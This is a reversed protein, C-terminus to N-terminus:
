PSVAPLVRVGPAPAYQSGVGVFAPDNTADWVSWDAYHIGFAGGVPDTWVSNPALRLNKCELVGVTETARVVVGSQCQPVYYPDLVVQLGREPVVPFELRFSRVTDTGRNTVRVRPKVINLEAMSERKLELKLGGVSGQPPPPPPPPVVLNRTQGWLWDGNADLVEVWPNLVWQGDLGQRSPSKSRDWASWDSMRVGFSGVSVKQGPQIWAKVFGRLMWLGGGLDVLDLQTNPVSWTELVPKAGVPVRLVWRVQLDQLPVNGDNQIEIQPKTINSENVAGERTAVRVRRVVPRDPDAAGVERGWLLKAKGDWVRITENKRIMGFNRDNSPDKFVDWPTWDAYHLGVQSSVASPWFAGPQVVANLDHLVLDFQDGGMSEISWLGGAPADLVVTRFPDARFRYRVDLGVIPSRGTNEVVIQPRTWQTENGRGERFWVQAQLDPKPDLYKTDVRGTGVLLPNDRIQREKVVGLNIKAGLGPLVLSKSYSKGSWTVAKITFTDGVRVLRPTAAYGPLIFTTTAGNQEIVVGGGASWLIRVPAQTTTAPLDFGTVGTDPLMLGFEFDGTVEVSVKSLTRMAFPYSGSPAFVAKDWPLRVVMGTAKELLDRCDPALACYIDHGQWASGVMEGNEGAFRRGLISKDFSADVSGHPVLSDPFRGMTLFRRVAYPRPEHFKGLHLPPEWVGGSRVAKQSEEQVAADSRALWEKTYDDWFKGLPLDAKVSSILSNSVYPIRLSEFAGYCAASRLDSEVDCLGSLNKSVLGRILPGMGAVSSYLPQFDLDQGNPLTPYASGLKIISDGTVSLQGGGEERSKFTLSHAYDKDTAFSGSKATFGGPLVWEWKTNKPWFWNGTMVVRLDSVSALAASGIALGEWACPIVANLSVVGTSTWPAASMAQYVQANAEGLLGFFSPSVTADLLKLDMKASDQLLKKVSNALETPQDAVSSTYLSGFHPSNSSVVTRIHNAANAAGVPMANGYPDTGAAKAIMERISVGGRSHAVLDIKLSTDTKWADGYHTQLVLQLAQYLWWSEGPKGVFKPGGDNWWPFPHRMQGSDSRRFGNFFYIGNQNIGAGKKLRKFRSIMDPATGSKYSDPHRADVSGLLSSKIPVLAQHSWLWLADTVRFEVDARQVVLRSGDAGVFERRTGPVARLAKWDMGTYDSALDSEKLWTELVGVVGSGDFRWSVVKPGVSNRVAEWLRKQTTDSIWFSNPISMLKTDPGVWNHANGNEACNGKFGFSGRIEVDYRSATKTALADVRDSSSPNWTISGITCGDNRIVGWSEDFPTNLGHVFLVPRSLVRDGGKYPPLAVTKGRWDNKVQDIPFKKWGNREWALRAGLQGATTSVALRRRRGQVFGNTAANPSEHIAGVNAFLEPDTVSGRVCSGCGWYSRAHGIGVVIMCGAMGGGRLTADVPLVATSLFRCDLRIPPPGPALM